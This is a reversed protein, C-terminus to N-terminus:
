QMTDSRAWRIIKVSASKNILELTHIIEGDTCNFFEAFNGTIDFHSMTAAGWSAIFRKTLLEMEGAMFFTVSLIIFAGYAGFYEFTVINM